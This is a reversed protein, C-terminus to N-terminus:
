FAEYRRQIFMGFGLDRLWEQRAPNNRNGSFRNDSQEKQAHSLHATLLFAILLATKM